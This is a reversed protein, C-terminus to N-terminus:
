YFRTVWKLQRLTWCSTSITLLHRRSGSLLADKNRRIQLLNAILFINFFFFVFWINTGLYVISRNVRIDKNLNGVPMEWAGSVLVNGKVWGKNSNTLKTVFQFVRCQTSLTFRKTTKLRIIYMFLVELELLDLAYLRNLMACGMLIHMTNSHMHVPHIGKHYLFQRVLFSLPLRLNARFQKWTLFIEEFSSNM